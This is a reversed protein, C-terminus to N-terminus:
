CSCWHACVKVRGCYCCMLPGVHTPSYVVEIESYDKGYKLVFGVVGSAPGVKFTSDSLSVIDPISFELNDDEVIKSKVFLVSGDQEKLIGLDINSENTCILFCKLQKDAMDITMRDLLQNNYKWIVLLVVIGLHIVDSSPLKAGKLTTSGTRSMWGM